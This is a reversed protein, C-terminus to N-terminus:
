LLVGFGHLPSLPFYFLECTPDFRALWSKVQCSGLVAPLLAALLGWIRWVQALRAASPPHPCPLRPARPGALEMHDPADTAGAPQEPTGPVKHHWDSCTRRGRAETWHLGHGSPLVCPKPLRVSLHASSVGASGGRPSLWGTKLGGDPQFSVPQIHQNASERCKQLARAIPRYERRVILLPVRSRPRRRQGRAPQVAGALPNACGAPARRLWNWGAGVCDPRRGHCPGDRVGPEPGKGRGPIDKEEQEWGFRLAYRLGM